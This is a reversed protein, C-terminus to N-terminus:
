AEGGDKRHVRARLIEIEDGEVMRAAAAVRVSRMRRDLPTM